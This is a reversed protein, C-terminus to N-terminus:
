NTYRRVSFFLFFSFEALTLFIECPNFGLLNLVQEWFSNRSSTVHRKKVQQLLNGKARWSKWRLHLPFFVLFIKLIELAGLLLICFKINPTLKAMLILLTPIKIADEKNEHKLFHRYLIKKNGWRLIVRPIYSNNIEIIHKHVYLVNSRM